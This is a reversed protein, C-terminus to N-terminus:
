GCQVNCVFGYVRLLLVSVCLYVGAGEHMDVKGMDKPIGVRFTTMVFAGKGVRRGMAGEQRGDVCNYHVYLYVYVYACACVCVCM